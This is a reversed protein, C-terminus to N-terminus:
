RWVYTLGQAPQGGLTAHGFATMGNMTAGRGANGEVKTKVAGRKKPLHGELQM